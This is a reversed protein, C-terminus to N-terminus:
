LKARELIQLLREIAAKLAPLDRTTTEWVIDADIEFYGHVLVNRMGIVKTWPVDQSM